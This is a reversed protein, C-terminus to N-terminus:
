TISLDWALEVPPGAIRSGVCDACHLPNCSTHQQLRIRPRIPCVAANAKEWRTNKPSAQHNSGILRRRGVLIEITQSLALARRRAHLWQERRTHMCKQNDYLNASLFALHSQTRTHSTEEISRTTLPNSVACVHCSSNTRMCAQRIRVTAHM